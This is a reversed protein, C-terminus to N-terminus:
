VDRREEVRDPWVDAVLVTADDTPRAGSEMLAGAAQEPALGRPLAHIARASIGDSWLLLRDGPRLSAEFTRLRHVRHGLMGPTLLTAVPTGLVRMEVNGVGAGRLLGREFCCVTAACGRTGRLHEHLGHVLGDISTSRPQAGLYSVALEAARAAEPGHGTGDIVALWTTDGDERVWAVDGNHLEGPVPRTCHAITLRM